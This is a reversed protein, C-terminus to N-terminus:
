NYKKKRKKYKEVPENPIDILQPPISRLWKDKEAFCLKKPKEDFATQYETVSKAIPLAQDNEPDRDIVYLWIDDEGMKEVYLVRETRLLNAREDRWELLMNRAIMGVTMDSKMM